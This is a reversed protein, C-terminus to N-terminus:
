QKTLKGTTKKSSQKAHERRLYRVYGDIMQLLSHADQRLDALHNEKAYGCDCCEGIDDVLEQLSGRAEHCYHIRDKFTYRGHGEALCNTISLAARRMQAKLRYEENKPLLLVLKNIRRRFLVGAQYAELKEFEFVVGM